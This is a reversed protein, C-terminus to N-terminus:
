NDRLTELFRPRLPALPRRLSELSIGQRIAVLVGAAELYSEVEIVQENFGLHAPTVAGHTANRKVVITPIEQDMAALFPINGVASEPLVLASINEADLADSPTPGEAHEIGPSRSLGILCSCLFSSSILEAADRPDGLTGFCTHEFNTLLPSHAATVPYFTTMLHTLIAEASGWPNPLPRGDRTTGSYYDQRFSDDSLHLASNLAVATAKARAMEDMAEFLPTMDGFQGSALGTENFQCITQINKSTVIVPDIQVGVVSRVANAANLANNLFETKIPQELILGVKMHRKPILRIQGLLWRTLLNGELYVVNEKAAYIDSATVANPNTILKDCTSALLNTVPTADGAFGGYEARMGTPVISAVVFPQSAVRTRPRFDFLSPWAPRRDSEVFSGEFILEDKEIGILVLRILEGQLRQDLIKEAIARWGSTAPSFHVFLRRTTVFPSVLSKMSNKGAFNRGVNNEFSDYAGARRPLNTAM